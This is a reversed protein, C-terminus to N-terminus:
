GGVAHDPRGAKGAFLDSESLRTVCERYPRVTNPKKNAVVWALFIEKAKDFVIDKRKRDIRAEGKLIKAREVSALEKAVTRNINRGLRVLPAANRM